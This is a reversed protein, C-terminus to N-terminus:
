SMPAPASRPRGLDLLALEARIEDAGRHDLVQEHVTLAESLLLRAEAAGGLRSKLIGLQRLIRGDGDLDGAARVLDLVDTLLEEAEHYRGHAAMLESLRYRM